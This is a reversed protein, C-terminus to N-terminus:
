NKIDFDELFSHATKDMKTRLVVKKAASAEGLTKV